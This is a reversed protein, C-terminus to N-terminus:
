RWYLPTGVPIIATYGDAELPINHEKRYAREADLVEQRTPTRGLEITLQERCFDWPNDGSKATRVFNKFSGSDQIVETQEPETQETINQTEQIQQELEEIRANADSLQQAAETQQIQVEKTKSQEAEIAQKKNSRGIFYMGVCAAVAIALGIIGRKKMKSAKALADHGIKSVKGMNKELRAIDKAQQEIQASKASVEQSLEWSESWLRNAESTKAALKETLEVKEGRLIALEALKDAECVGSKQIRNVDKGYKAFLDSGKQGRPSPAPKSFIYGDKNPTAKGFQEELDQLRAVHDEKVCQAYIGLEAKKAKFAENVEKSYRSKEIDKQILELDQLSEANNIISLNELESVTKGDYLKRELKEFLKQQQRSGESDVYPRLFELGKKDHCDNLLDGIVIQMDSPKSAQRLEKAHQRVVDNIQKGRIKTHNSM